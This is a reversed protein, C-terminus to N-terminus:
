HRRRVRTKDMYSVELGPIVVRVVPVPTKSLDCVCVREAHGQLEELTVKLDEDIYETSKDPIESLKISEAEDTFWMRNIRKLREYGAKEILMRRKPDERGGKLSSGRSQAVETLARLVAIEPNLHTGSGMVLLSPDKTLTDDGGAAVTPVGTKADILWLHIKVGNDEFIDLLEKAPGEKDVIIKKGMSRANEADSLADREIVEFIAHLIAEEIINGSALGNTDSRFLQQAMGVPDYPHFVANSPVYIEEENMMDWSPTWHLKEGSELPRPLILDAPDVATAPGMGDFSEHIMSEGRYEASYREIAEMMASVEAHVPRTGKGAHMRTAGPKAGPRSASYVPIGLRDLGTIDEVEVVGIKPMLPKIKELTKEPATVRHTGDFYEKKIRNIRIPDIHTFM